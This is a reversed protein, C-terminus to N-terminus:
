STSKKEPPKPQASKIADAVNPPMRDLPAEEPRFSIGRQSIEKVMQNAPVQTSFMDEIDGLSFPSTDAPIDRPPEKSDIVLHPLQEFEVKVARVADRVTPEDVAAIAVIEDGAWHIESGPKQVVEIAKVGPMKEAASTDISTIRAHAYPSRVFAGYL